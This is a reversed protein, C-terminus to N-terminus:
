KPKNEEEISPDVFGLQGLPRTPTMLIQLLALTNGAVECFPLGCRRLHDGGGDVVCRAENEMHADVTAGRSCAHIGGGLMEFAIPAANRSAPQLALQASGVTNGYCPQRFVDSSEEEEGVWTKKVAPSASRCIACYQMCCCHM